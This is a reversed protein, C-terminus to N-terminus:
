DSKNDRLTRVDLLLLHTLVKIPVVVDGLLLIEKGSLKLVFM